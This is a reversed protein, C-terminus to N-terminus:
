KSMKIAKDLVEIGEDVQEQTIILPPIIRIASSGTSLLILGNKFANNIVDNRLKSNPEKTRRDKVFDIALMLGLGRVDGIENYKNQLEVLRKKMYAGQKAANEVANLKKMEDITAVCAASAILNGGFTNSHLGNESFNMEEKMVAAGMPIGSAISKALTIVDPEVGFHESAFFKGTRGFGSQVEDILLPIHYKDALKRLEKFFNMPPVIYGGEGQIPEALIGAVDEPPVYTKLLYTEIYDIVRNVLEDPEEYGDINFPNRYPNPFPVHEVGPMSPFFGKHHIPKSATFSLSGQTRGHFAGIFGIFRERHTYSKAIKIAAEVSETGSNTFFVKKNFKGPTVEILSKAALVQMETYFDTGPFHWLKHLQEEVKQTVYPDLHGLNTVSIGSAFDLYVNGDVDEVYVGKGLKGVVPLSQTSRALYKDNLEIIKKAEPGPPTVKIKIGNLEEQMM